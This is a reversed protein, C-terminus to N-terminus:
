PLRADTGEEAEEDELLIGAGGRKLQDRKMRLALTRALERDGLSPEGLELRVAARLRRLAEAEFAADDDIDTDGSLCWDLDHTIEGLVPALRALERALAPWRKKVERERAVDELAGQIRKDEYNWHGGSM